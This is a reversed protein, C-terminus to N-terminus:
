VISPHHHLLIIHTIQDFSTHLHAQVQAEAHEILNHTHDHITLGIM